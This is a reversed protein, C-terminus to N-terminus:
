EVAALQTATAIFLSGRPRILPGAAFSQPPREFFERSGRTLARIVSNGYIESFLAASRGTSHYGPRTEQELLCVSYESSLEAAVSAGAIGAGIVLFDTKNM